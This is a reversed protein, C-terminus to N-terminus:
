AEALGCLSLLKGLSWIAYTAGGGVVVLMAAYSAATRFAAPRGGTERWRRVDQEYEDEARLLRM